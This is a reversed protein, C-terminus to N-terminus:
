DEYMGKSKDGRASGSMDMDKKVKSQIKDMDELLGSLSKISNQVKSADHIPKNTKFDRETLDVERFFRRIENVAIKADELVLLSLPLDKKYIEIAEKVLDDPEYKESSDILSVVELHKQESDTIDSIYSRFDISWFIYSIDKYANVKDKSKDREWIKRFVEINFLNPNIIINSDSDLDLFYRM